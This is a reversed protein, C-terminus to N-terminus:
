EACKVKHFRQELSGSGRTVGLDAENKVEISGVRQVVSWEPNVEQSRSVESVELIRPTGPVCRFYESM